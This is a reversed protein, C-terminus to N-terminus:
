KKKGYFSIIDEDDIENSTQKTIRLGKRANLWARDSHTLTVLEFASKSGYTEYVSDIFAVFNKGLTKKLETLDENNKLESFNFDIPSAGFKKLKYYVSPLVPGNPWAQFKEAFCRKGTKALCWVYIFYLIKQMKLNTIVDGYFACKFLVYKVIDIPNKNM